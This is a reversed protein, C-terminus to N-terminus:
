KKAPDDQAAIWADLDSLQYAVRKRGLKVCRPGHGEHAWRALTGPSLTLRHAADQRSLLPEHHPREDSRRVPADQAHTSSLQQMLPDGSRRIRVPGIYKLVICYILLYYSTCRGRMQGSCTM